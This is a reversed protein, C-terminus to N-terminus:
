IRPRRGSSLRQAVASLPATPAAAAAGGTPPASTTAQAPKTRQWTDIAFATQLMAERQTDSQAEDTRWFPTRLRAVFPGWYKRMASQEHKVTTANAGLDAYGHIATGMQDLISLDAPRLAFASPM